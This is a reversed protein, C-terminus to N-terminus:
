ADHLNRHRLEAQLAELWEEEEAVQQSVERATRLLADDDLSRLDNAFQTRIVTDIDMELTM